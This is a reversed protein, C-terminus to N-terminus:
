LSICKVPMHFNIDWLRQFGKEPCPIIEMPSSLIWGYRGPTWDGVAREAPTDYKSGRLDEIPLCDKLNVIRIVAGSFLSQKGSLLEILQQNKRAELNLVM